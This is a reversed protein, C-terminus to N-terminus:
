LADRPLFVVLFYYKRVVSGTNPAACGKKAIPEAMGRGRGM